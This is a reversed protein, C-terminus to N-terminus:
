QKKEMSFHVPMECIRYMRFFCTMDNWNNANSSDRITVCDEVGAINNPEGIDWFSLSENFPTGDVWKWQGDVVQDTLGIYFERGRPKTRFLFIQEERTNIVALKAGMEECNKLSATWTMTDNSFFYCSTQFKKWNLPCCTNITGSPDIFCTSETLYFQDKDEECERSFLRHSVVCKTIFCSSLFLISVGTIICYCLPSHLGIRETNEVASDKLPDM